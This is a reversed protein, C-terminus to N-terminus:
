ESGLKSGSDAAASEREHQINESMKESLAAGEVDMNPTLRDLWKPMWWAKDGLLAMIAPTLTMRVIFADVLVGFALGFGMPRIMTSDAFIFGGFVSIMIIAAAVVVRVAHNYGSVIATATDKGHVYAERMGTVLFMQYDMALGFLIGILLTPLFSLVPGPHDVGFLSSMFGLQYISVVAGFSALVSFLFGVSAVLPVLISRFVLILVLFSLGMVVGLYLPLKQALVESVDINGSTQGAIGLSVESGQVPITVARLEHVLEETEVSSASHAPIVQFIMLTRDDTMGGPVVAQVNAGGHEKVASAIDIQAQQAQEESMNAPTHAVAVLPASMGEGFKEKVLAYSKYAASDSPYNSADPLGLRMQSMPAAVALLALTGIVLTLLPRALVLRLWGNPKETREADQARREEIKKPTDISAWLKKPMIKAGALSLVAPTLTVAILAAVVVCFAAANGMVGLFPIGTVNLAVLAIIVTSAAFIVANGSTGNALAIAQIKPM